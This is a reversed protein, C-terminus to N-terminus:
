RRRRRSNNSDENDKNDKRYQAPILEKPFAENYSYEISYYGFDTKKHDM